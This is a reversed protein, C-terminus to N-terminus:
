HHARPLNTLREEVLRGLFEALDDTVHDVYAAETDRELANILNGDVNAEHQVLVTTMGLSHPVKLNRAIDEFMASRAPDIGHDRVFKQYPGCAPKPIYDSHVIDFVGHFHSRVGLRDMVKEAHAVTGNTFIL